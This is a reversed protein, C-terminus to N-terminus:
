LSLLFLLQNFVEEWINMAVELTFDAFEGIVLGVPQVARCRRVFEKREAREFLTRYYGTTRSQLKSLVEDTSRKTVVADYFQWTVLFTSVVAVLPFWCYVLMHLGSPRFTIYLLITVAGAWLFIVPAMMYRMWNLYMINHLRICNYLRKVKTWSEADVLDIVRCFYFM